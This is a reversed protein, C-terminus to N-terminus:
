LMQFTCPFISKCRQSYSTGDKNAIAQFTCIIYIHRYFAPFIYFFGLDATSNHIGIYKDAQGMKFAVFGCSKSASDFIDTHAAAGSGSLGFLVAASFGMNGRLKASAAAFALLFTGVIAKDEIFVGALHLDIQVAAYAASATQSGAVKVGNGKIVVRGIGKEVAAHSFVGFSYDVSPWVEMNGQDHIYGGVTVAM